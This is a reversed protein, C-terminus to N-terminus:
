LVSCLVECNVEVKKCALESWKGSRTAMVGGSGAILIISKVFLVPFFCSSVLDKADMSESLYLSLSLSGM